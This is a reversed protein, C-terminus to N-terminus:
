LCCSTFLFGQCRAQHSTVMCCHACYLSLSGFLLNQLKLYFLLKLRTDFFMTLKFFSQRPMKLKALYLIVKFQIFGSFLVKSIYLFVLSIIKVRLAVLITLSSFSWYPNCVVINIKEDNVMRSFCKTEALWWGNSAETTHQSARGCLQTSNRQAQGFIYLRTFHYAQEKRQCHRQFRSRRMCWM